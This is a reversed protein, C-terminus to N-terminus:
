EGYLTKNAIVMKIAEGFINNLRNIILESPTKLYKRLLWTYNLTTKVEGGHLWVDISIIYENLSPPILRRLTSLEECVKDQKDKLIDVLKPVNCLVEIDKSAGTFQIHILPTYYKKKFWKTFFM